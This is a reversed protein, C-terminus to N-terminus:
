EEKKKGALKTVAAAASSVSRRRGAPGVMTSSSVSTSASVRFALVVVHSPGATGIKMELVPHCFRGVCSRTRSSLLHLDRTGLTAGM